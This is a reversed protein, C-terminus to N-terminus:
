PSEGRKLDLLWAGTQQSGARLEFRYGPIKLGGARVQEANGLVLSAGDTDVSLSQVDCGCNSLMPDLGTLLQMTPAQLSERQQFLRQLRTEAIGRLDGTGVSEGPFLARWSSMRQQELQNVQKAIVSSSFHLYGGTLIIALLLLACSPLWQRASGLNRAPRFVGTLLNANVPMESFQWDTESINIDAQPRLNEPVMETDPVSISLRPANPRAVLHSLQAWALEVPAAFGSSPGDRVLLVGDRWAVSIRGAEWPLALFDPVMCDANFGANLAVDLWDRLDNKDVAFVVLHDGDRGAICVHMQQIPQLVRDEIMWPVLEPWNRPPAAPVPVRHISIRDSPVWIQAQASQGDTSGPQIGLAFLHHQFISM